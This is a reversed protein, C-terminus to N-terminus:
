KKRGIIETLANVLNRGAIGCEGDVNYFQNALATTAAFTTQTNKFIEDQSKIDVGNKYDYGVKFLDATLSFLLGGNVSTM